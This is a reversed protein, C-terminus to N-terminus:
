HRGRGHYYSKVEENKKQGYQQEEIREALRIWCVATILIILILTVVIRIVRM